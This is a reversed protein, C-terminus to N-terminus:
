SKRRRSRKRRRGQTEGSAATLARVMAQKQPDDAVQFETWWDALSQEAEGAEVRLLLFDYAARFREHGLLKFAMKGRRREFRPQMSWIERMPVSFRKPLATCALQAALVERAADRLAETPALGRDLYRKMKQQLPGWLLVAYLFAPTVPKNDLIRADTNSLAHPVLITAFPSHSDEVLEGAIPFLYRFLDYQRLLEYTELARGGHFLKLVEEFRRAPPVEDLLGSLRRIPEATDHEIRFGLKAAFRIVRLMRVPDERFRREPDGIVRLVGSQLDSVGDVYDIVSFDRINYYLANVTIDRRVADQEQDGFVNDRLLRGSESTHSDDEQGPISRYTAVEIVDRGFRVHVLQFRRGIVRASRFISTIQEPLANTVVDFDKPEHGLMLDRM